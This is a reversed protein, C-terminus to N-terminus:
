VPPSFGPVSPSPAIPSMQQFASPSNVLQKKIMALICPQSRSQCYGPFDPPMHSHVWPVTQEFENDTNLIRFLTHHLPLFIQGLLPVDIM